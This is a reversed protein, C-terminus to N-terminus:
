KQITAKEERLSEDRPPKQRRLLPQSKRSRLIQCLSSFRTITLSTMRPRNLILIYSLSQPLTENEQRQDGAHCKSNGRFDMLCSRITESRFNLTLGIYLVIIIIISYMLIIVFTIKPRGQFKVSYDGLRIQWFPPSNNNTVTVSSSIRLKISFVTGLLM